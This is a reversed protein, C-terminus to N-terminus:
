EWKKWMVEARVIYLGGFDHPRHVLTCPTVFWVVTIKMYSGCLLMLVWILGVDICFLKRDTAYGFVSICSRILRRLICTILFLKLDVDYRFIRNIAHRRDSVTKQSTYRVANSKIM